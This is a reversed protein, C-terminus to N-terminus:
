QESLSQDDSSIAKQVKQFSFCKELVKSTIPSADSKIKLCQYKPKHLHIYKYIYMKKKPAPISGLAKRM